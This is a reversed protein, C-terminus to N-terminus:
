MEESHEADTSKHTKGCRDCPAPDNLTAVFEGVAEFPGAADVRAVQGSSDYTTTLERSDPWGPELWSWVRLNAPDIRYMTWVPSNAYEHYLNLWREVESLSSGRAEPRPHRLHWERPTGDYSALGLHLDEDVDSISEVLLRTAEEIDPAVILEPGEDRLGHWEVVVAILQTVSM